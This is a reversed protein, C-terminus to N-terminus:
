ADTKPSWKSQYRDELCPTACNTIAAVVSLVFGLFCLSMNSVLYTWYQVLQSCDPVFDDLPQLVTRIDESVLPSGRSFICSVVTTGNTISGNVTGGGSIFLSNFGPLLVSVGYLGAPLSSPSNEVLHSLSTDCLGSLGGAGMCTLIAFTNLILHLGIQLPSLVCVPCLCHIIM